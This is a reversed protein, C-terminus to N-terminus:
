NMSLKQTFGKAKTLLKIDSIVNLTEEMYIDKQMDEHWRERKQKLLTDKEFLASRAVVALRVAGTRAWKCAASAGVPLDQAQTQDYSDVQYSPIKGTVPDAVGPTSGAPLPNPTTVNDHGYQARM